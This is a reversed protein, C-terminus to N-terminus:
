IEAGMTPWQWALVVNGFEKPQSPYRVVMGKSLQTEIHLFVGCLRLKSDFPLVIV